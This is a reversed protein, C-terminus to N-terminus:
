RNIAHAAWTHMIPGDDETLQAAWPHLISDDETVTATPM